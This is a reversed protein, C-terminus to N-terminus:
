PVAEAGTDGTDVFPLIMQLHGPWMFEADWVGEACDFRILRYCSPCLARPTDTETEVACFWRRPRCLIRLDRNALIQNDALSEEDVGWPMECDPQTTGCVFCGEAAWAWGQEEKATDHTLFELNDYDILERVFKKHASLKAFFMADRAEYDEDDMDMMKRRTNEDPHCITL